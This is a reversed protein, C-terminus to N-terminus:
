IQLQQRSPRIGQVSVVLSADADPDVGHGVGHDVGLGEM